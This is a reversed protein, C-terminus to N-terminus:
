SRYHQDGCKGSQLKSSAPVFLADGSRQAGPAAQHLAAASAEALAPSAPLAIAVVAVAAAAMAPAGFRFARLM